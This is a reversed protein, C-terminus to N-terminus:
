DAVQLPGLSTSSDDPSAGTRCTLWSWWWWWSFGLFFSISSSSSIFLCSPCSCSYAIICGAVLLHLFFHYKEGSSHLDYMMRNHVDEGFCPMMKAINRPSICVSNNIQSPILSYSEYLWWHSEPSKYIINQKPTNLLGIVNPPRTCRFLFLFNGDSEITCKGKKATRKGKKASEQLYNSTGSCNNLWKSIKYWSAMESDM